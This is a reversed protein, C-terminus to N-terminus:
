SEMEDKMKLSSHLDEGIENATLKRVQKKKQCARLEHKGKALQLQDNTMWPVQVHCIM